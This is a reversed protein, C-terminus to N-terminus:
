QSLKSGRLPLRVTFTTGKGVESSVSLIGRHRKIIEDSISLGLGTGKGEPKTTFFAKFIEKLVKKKIGCGDDVFEIEISKEGKKASSNTRIKLEGGKKMAEKANLIINLFVQQLQNKDASLKPLDPKLEKTIKVNDLFFEHEIPVLTNEVLLNIDTPKFDLDTQRSFRLINDIVKIVRQTNEEIAGLYSAVRESIEKEGGKIQSLIYQMYFLTSSLPDNIEHTLTASLQGLTAMKASQILQIQTQRLEKNTKRLLKIKDELEKYLEANEIAIGAQGALLSVIKLDREKFPRGDAKDSVNIVGKINGREGLPTCICPLSLFSKTEYKEGKKRGFQADEEIDAVMAPKGDRAVKGSIGEGLKTRTKKIVEKNMGRATAIRLEKKKEDLLMLSGRKASTVKLAADLIKEMLQDIRLTGSIARVLNYLVALEEAEINKLVLSHHKLWKKVLLRLEDISGFPKILYDYAGEEMSSIATELSEYATIMICGVEPAIKRIKRLVEIGDIGPLRIDIIALDFTGEKIKRLAERGDGALGVMYGEKRLIRDFLKRIEEEDDVILIRPKPMEGRKQLKPRSRIM